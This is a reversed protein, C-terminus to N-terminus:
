HDAARTAWFSHGQLFTVLSIENPVRQPLGWRDRVLGLAWRFGLLGWGKKSDSTGGGCRSALSFRTRQSITSCSVGLGRAGSCHKRRMDNPQGGIRVPPSTHTLPAAEATGYACAEAPCAPPLIEVARGASATPHPPASRPLDGVRALCAVSPRFFVRSRQPPGLASFWGTSCADPTRVRLGHRTRRRGGDPSSPPVRPLDRAFERGSSGSTATPQPSLRGQARASESVAVRQAPGVFFSDASPLAMRQSRRGSVSRAVRCIRPCHRRHTVLAAQCEDASCGPRACRRRLASIENDNHSVNSLGDRHSASALRCCWECVLASRPCSTESTNKGQVILYGEM